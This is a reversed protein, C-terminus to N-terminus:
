LSVEFYNIIKPSFSIKFDGRKPSNVGLFDIDLKKKHFYLIQDITLPSSPLEDRYNPDSGAILSYATKNDFVFLTSSVIKGKTNRLFNLRAFKNKIAHNCFKKLDNLFNEDIKMNQRVFTLEYLSILDEVTGDPSVLNSFKKFEKRRSKRFNLLIQDQNIKKLNLIGTYKLNIKFKPKNTENYNYWQFARLDEFKPNITLSFNSHKKTILSIIKESYNLIISYRRTNSKIDLIEKNFIIGNYVNFLPKQDGLIIPVCAIVNNTELDFFVYKLVQFKNKYFELYSSLSFITGHSSNLILKDWYKNENDLIFKLSM